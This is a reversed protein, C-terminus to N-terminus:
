QNILLTSTVNLQALRQTLAIALIDHGAQTMHVKDAMLGTLQYSKVWHGTSVFPVHNQQAYTGLLEDVATRRAGGATSSGALTGVMLLKSSPYQDQLANITESVGLLIQADSAGITADNGGGEVVILAPPVSPLAWRQQKLASPYNLAGSNNSAVFGTGGAGVFQVDYGAARLASQTWTRNGPVNAAGASQSDGILLALKRTALGQNAAHGLGASSGAGSAQPTSSLSRQSSSVSQAASTPSGVASPQFNGIAAWSVLVTGLLISALLARAARYTTSGRPEM